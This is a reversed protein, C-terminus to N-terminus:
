WGEPPTRTSVVLSVGPDSSAATNQAFPYYIEPLAPHGLSAQHVDGVVGVITGRDTQRGIPDESQFYRRALAENILIVRRADGTDGDTLGRGSRIPIGM